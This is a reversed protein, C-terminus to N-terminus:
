VFDSLQFVRQGDQLHEVAQARLQDLQGADFNLGAAIVHNVIYLNIAIDSLLKNIRNASRTDSLSLEARVTKIIEQPIVYSKNEMYHMDRYMRLARDVIDVVTTHDTEAIKTVDEYLEDDVRVNKISKRISNAV